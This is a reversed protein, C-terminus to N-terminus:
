TLLSPDMCSYRKTKGKLFFFAFFMLALAGWYIKWAIKESVINVKNLLSIITFPILGLMVLGGIFRVYNGMVDLSGGNEGIGEISEIFVRIPYTSKWVIGEKNLYQKYSNRNGVVEGEDNIILDGKTTFSGKSARKYKKEGM